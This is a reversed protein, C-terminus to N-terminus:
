MPNCMRFVKQFNSQRLMAVAWPLSPIEMLRCKKLLPHVLCNDPIIYSYSAERTCSFSRALHVRQSKAMHSLFVSLNFVTFFLSIVPFTSNLLQWIESKGFAYYWSLCTNVSLKYNLPLHFFKCCLCATDGAWRRASVWEAARLDFDTKVVKVQTLYVACDQILLNKLPNM